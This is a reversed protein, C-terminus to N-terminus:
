FRQYHGILRNIKHIMERDSDAHEKNLARAVMGLSNYGRHERHLRDLQQLMAQVVQLSIEKALHGDILRLHEIEYNLDEMHQYIRERIAFLQCRQIQAAPTANLIICGGPGDFPVQLAKIYKMEAQELNKIRHLILHIIGIRQQKTFPAPITSTSVM